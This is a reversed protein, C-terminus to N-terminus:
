CPEDLPLKGGEYPGKRSSGRGRQKRGLSAKRGTSYGAESIPGVQREHIEGPELMEAARNADEATSLLSNVVKKLRWRVEENARVAASKQYDDGGDTLRIMGAVGLSVEVNLVRPSAGRFGLKSYQEGPEVLTILEELSVDCRPAEDLRVPFELERLALRALGGFEAGWVEPRHLASIIGYWLAAMPQSSLLGQVLQFHASSGGSIKSSFYAVIFDALLTPGKNDNNVFSRKGMNRLAQDFIEVRQEATGKEYKGFEGSWGLAEIVGRLNEEAIFGDSRIDRCCVIALESERALSVKRTGLVSGGLAELVGWVGEYGGESSSVSSSGLLKRAEGFRVTAERMGKSGWLGFSRGAVFSSCSQLAAVSVHPAEVRGGLRLFAEGIIAGAWAAANGHEPVREVTGMRQFDVEGVV